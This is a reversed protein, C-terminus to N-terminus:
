MNFPDNSVWRWISVGCPCLHSHGTYRQSIIAWGISVASRIKEPTYNPPLPYTSQRHVRQVPPVLSRAILLSRVLCFSLKRRRSSM